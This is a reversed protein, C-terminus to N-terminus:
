EGNNQQELFQQLLVDDLPIILYEVGDVQRKIKVLKHDIFETLQTRLAQDSCVLFAERSARYLDKFAMGLFVM